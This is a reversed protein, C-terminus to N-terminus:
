GPPQHDSDPPDDVKEKPEDIPKPPEDGFRHLKEEGVALRYRTMKIITALTLM